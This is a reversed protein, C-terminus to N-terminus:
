KGKLDDKGHRPAGYQGNRPLTNMQRRSTQRAPIEQAGRGLSIMVRRAGPPGPTRQKFLPRLGTSLRYKVQGTRGSGNQTNEREGEREATRPEQLTYLVVPVNEKARTSKRLSSVSDLPGHRGTLPNPSLYLIFSLIQTASYGARARM